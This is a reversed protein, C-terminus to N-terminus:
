RMSSMGPALALLARRAAEQRAAVKNGGRGRGYEANDIYVICNFDGPSQELLFSPSMQRKSCWEYLAAVGMKGLLSADSRPKKSLSSHRVWRSGSSSSDGDVDYKEVPPKNQLRLLHFPLLNSLAPYAPAYDTSDNAVLPTLVMRLRRMTTLKQVM